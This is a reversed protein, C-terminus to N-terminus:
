TKYMSMIIIFMMNDNHLLHHNNNYINGEEDKLEDLEQFSPTPPHQTTALKSAITKDRQILRLIASLYKHHCFATLM